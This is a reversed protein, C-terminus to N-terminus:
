RAATAAPGSWARLAGFAERDGILGIRGGSDQPLSYCEILIDDLYFEVLSLKLLLRFRTPQGFAWQRDVREEAVLGTGDSQIPGIEARGRDDILIGTAAGGASPLSLGRSPQGAAPLALTGELIVDEAVDFTHGVLTVPGAADPAQIEIERQKL